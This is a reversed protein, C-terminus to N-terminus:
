VKRKNGWLYIHLRPLMRWGRAIVSDVLILMRERINEADIGEAMIIVRDNEIGVTRVVEEVEDLDKLKNVVFKFYVNKGKSFMDLAEYNLRFKEEIGSSSLKPSVNIQCRELIKESPKISGNTEIELKWGDLKEILKEVLVMQLLPEGGTIVLRRSKFFNLEDVIESVSLQIPEIDKEWTYKTDCWSCRLNCGQLRLFVAPSGITAGEGQISEFIGDSSLLIKKNNTNLITM